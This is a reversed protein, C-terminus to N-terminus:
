RGALFEDLDVNFSATKVTGPEETDGEKVEQSRIPLCAESVFQSVGGPKGMYNLKPCIVTVRDEGRTIAVYALRREDDYATEDGGAFAEETSSHPFTGQAMVTYTKKAQLGKWQHITDVMVAPEPDAEKKRNRDNAQILKKLFGLFKAPDNYKKAMEMLPRLPSLAAERIMEDTPELTENEAAVDEPDVEDILAELFSQKSGRLSLIGEILQNMPKGRLDDIDKLVEAYPAVMKDNRWDESGVYPRGGDILFELYNQGPPCRHQLGAAFERNLFFGPTSHADAVADNIDNDDTASAITIWNMMARVAPKGFFNAKSRFPIGKSMLALCYADAEGNNRVLIGFDKPSAGSEVEDAIDKAALVAGDEHRPVEIAEIHGEGRKEHAKCEIPIRRDGNHAILKNAAEVINKGSRYNITLTKVNFGKKPLSIFEEPVAGRFAYIAQNADGVVAYTDAKDAIKNFIEWQVRNLDQSEDCLVIKFRQQLTSLARPNTDLVRNAEVLWDDFDMAPGFQPDNHKLWTYAGYVASAFYMVMGNKADKNDEWAKEVPIMKNQFLGVATQIRRKGLPKGRNDVLNQGLNFWEGIPQKWYPTSTGGYAAARRNYGGSGGGGWGGGGQSRRMSVQKIAIDMLSGMARLDTAKDIIRSNIGSFDKLIEHAISHTTGIRAETIGYKVKVREKLEEASKHTFSTALIQDPRYGREKVFYALKAAMTATKGSGAGATIVVKGEALLAATQEENLGSEKAVTSTPAHAVAAAAASMVVAPTPSSAALEGIQSLVEQKKAQLEAHEPTMPDAAQIEGQVKQLEETLPAASEADTMAEEVASPAVGAAKAADKVWKNLTILASVSPLGALGHLVAEPEDNALLLAIMKGIRSARGPFIDGFLASRPKLWIFLRRFFPTRLAAKAMPNGPRMARAIASKLVSADNRDKLPLIHQEMAKDMPDSFRRLYTYGVKLLRDKAPDQGQSIVWLKYNSYALTFVILDMFRAPTVAKTDKEEAADEAKKLYKQSIKQVLDDMPKRLVFSM